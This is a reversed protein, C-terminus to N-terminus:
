QLHLTAQVYGEREFEARAAASGWEPHRDDLLNRGVVAIELQRVPTWGLRADVATYSPVRPSPLSGVRRVTVDLEASRGLDLLSRASWW